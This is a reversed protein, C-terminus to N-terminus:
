QPEEGWVRVGHDYVPIHTVQLPPAGPPTAVGAYSWDNAPNWAGASTIRFQVEKQWASQGGPYIPVGTCDVLVSYVSGNAQVPPGISKCQNYNSTVTIMEPTVGPELTFFYKFSLVDGMRAPWGSKNQVLAKIETFNTGSANLSASVFIEDDRKEPV